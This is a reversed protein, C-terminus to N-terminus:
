LCDPTGIRCWNSGFFGGTEAIKHFHNIDDVQLDLEGGSMIVGKPTDAWHGCIQSSGCITTTFNATRNKEFSLPGIDVGFSGHFVNTFDIGTGGNSLGVWYVDGGFQRVYYIGGDDSRWVGTLGLQAAVQQMHAAGVFVLAVITVVISIITIGKNSPTEVM